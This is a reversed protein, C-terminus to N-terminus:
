IGREHLVRRDIRMGGGEVGIGGLRERAVGTAQPVHERRETLHKEDDDQRQHGGRDDEVDEHGEPDGLHGATRM